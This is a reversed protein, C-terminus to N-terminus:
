TVVRQRSNTTWYPVSANLIWNRPNMQWFINNRKKLYKIINWYRNIIINNYSCHLLCIYVRVVDPFPMIPSAGLWLYMSNLIHKDKNNLVVCMCPLIRRAKIVRGGARWFFVKLFYRNFFGNMNNFDYHPVWKYINTQLRKEYMLIWVHITKNM